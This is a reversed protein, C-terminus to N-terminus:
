TVALRVHAQRALPPHLLVRPEPRRPRREARPVARRLCRRAAAAVALKSQWAKTETACMSSLERVDAHLAYEQELLEGLKAPLEDVM